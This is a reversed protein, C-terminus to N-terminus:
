KMLSLTEVTGGSKTAVIFLTSKIILSQELAFITDPDTTDLVTLDPYGPKVDFIKRFMEPAMSSGGMGLLIVRTIGAARVKKVFQELGPIESTMKRQNQLWGLRNSIEAPDNKWVTHDKQWIRSIVQLERLRSLKERIIKEPLNFTYINDM